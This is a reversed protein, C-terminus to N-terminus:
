CKCNLFIEDVLLLMQKGKPNKPDPMKLPRAIIKLYSVLRPNFTLEFVKIIHVMDKAPVEPRLTSLLKMGGKTEGGWIEIVAAPYIGTKPEVMTNLGVSSLSIPTKFELMLEM